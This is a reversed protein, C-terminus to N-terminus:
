CQVGNEQHRNPEYNFVGKRKLTDCAKEFHGIYAQNHMNEDSKKIYHSIVFLKDNIITYLLRLQNNCTKTKYVYFGCIIDHILVDDNFVRNITTGNETYNEIRQQLKKIGSDICRKTNPDSKKYTPDKIIVKM